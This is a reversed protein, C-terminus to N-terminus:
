DEGTEIVNPSEVLRKIASLTADSKTTYDPLNSVESEIQYGSYYKGLETIATLIDRRFERREYEQWSSRPMDTDIALNFVEKGAKDKITCTVTMALPKRM